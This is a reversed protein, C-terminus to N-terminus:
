IITYKFGKILEKSQEVVFIHKNQTLLIHTSCPASCPTSCPLNGQESEQKDEKM